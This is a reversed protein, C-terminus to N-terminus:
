VFPVSKKEVSQVMHMYKYVQRRSGTKGGKAGTARTKTEWESQSSVQTSAADARTEADVVM